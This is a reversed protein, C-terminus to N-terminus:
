WMPPDHPCKADPNSYLWSIKGAKERGKERQIRVVLDCRDHEANYQGCANSRCIAAHDHGRTDKLKKEIRKEPNRSPGAHISGCSGCIVPFVFAFKAYEFCVCQKEDM